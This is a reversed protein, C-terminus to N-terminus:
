RTALMKPEFSIGHDRAYRNVAASLFLPKRGFHDYPAPWDGRNMLQRVRSLPLAFRAAVDHENLLVATRKKRVRNFREVHRREFLIRRGRRQTPVGFRGEWRYCHISTVSLGCLKAAEEITILDHM